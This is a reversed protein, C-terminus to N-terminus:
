DINFNNGLRFHSRRVKSLIGFSLYVYMYRHANISKISEDITFRNHKTAEAAM